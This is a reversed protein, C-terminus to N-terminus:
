KILIRLYTVKTFYFICLSITCVVSLNLGFYGGATITGCYIYEANTPVCYNMSKKLTVPETLSKLNSLGYAWAASGSLWFVALVVSCM